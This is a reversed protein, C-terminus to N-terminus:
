LVVMYLVNFHEFDYELAVKEARMGRECELSCTAPLRHGPVITAVSGSM